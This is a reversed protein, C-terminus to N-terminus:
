SLRASACPPHRVWIGLAVIRVPRAPQFIRDPSVPLWPEPLLADVQGGEPKGMPIDFVQAMDCSVELMSRGTRAADSGDRGCMPLSSFRELPVLPGDVETM